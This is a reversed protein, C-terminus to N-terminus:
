GLHTALEGAKRLARLAAHLDADSQIVVDWAKEDVHGICISGGNAVANCKSLVAAVHIIQALSTAAPGPEHYSALAEVLTEPFHWRQALASAIL